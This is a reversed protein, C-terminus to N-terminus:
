HSSSKDFRGSTAHLPTYSRVDRGVRQDKQNQDEESTEIQAEKRRGSCLNICFFFNLYLAQKRSGQNSNNEGEQLSGIGKQWNEKGDTLAFIKPPNQNSRPQLQPMLRIFGVKITTEPTFRKM